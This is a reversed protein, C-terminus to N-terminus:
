QEIKYEYEERVKSNTNIKDRLLKNIRELNILSEDLNFKINNSEISHTNKSERTEVQINHIDNQKEHISKELSQIRKISESLKYEM